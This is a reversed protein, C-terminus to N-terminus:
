KKEESKEFLAVLETHNSYNFQDVMTIQKICYGGSLLVNADNVFTHPNCSVAIIKQPKKEFELEAIKAVQEAAGARPPDFVILSFGNLEDGQLPYKFLNRKLIKINPIMLRNINSQFENLLAESSDAATIKNKLNAALPYSFTGIGCFLDAINGTTGEAYKMVLGILTKESQESAQLFTASPIKIRRDAINIFPASKQAIIETQGGRNKHSFSIIQPTSNLLEAILLRHELSLEFDVELSIDTGNACDTLFIQGQRINEKILKKGKLKKTIGIECMRNLFDRIVPIIDNLNDTLLECREIDAIEHTQRANFGFILKGKRREFSFEARRRSRDGIFVPEGFVINQQKLNATIKSFTEIKKQQYDAETLHRFPCGGCIESYHCNM